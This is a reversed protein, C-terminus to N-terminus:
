VGWGALVTRLGVVFAIPQDLMLHHGSAPIEIVHDSDGYQEKTFELAGDTLFVSEDGYFLAKPCAMNRLYNALPEDRTGRGRVADEAARYDDFDVFAFAPPRSPSKLDIDVIRGYREHWGARAHAFLRFPM